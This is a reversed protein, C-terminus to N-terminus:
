MILDEFPAPFPWDDFWKPYSEVGDTDGLIDDPGWWDPDPIHIRVPVTYVMSKVRHYVSSIHENPIEPAKVVEVVSGEPLVKHSEEELERTATEPAPEEDARTGTLTQPKLGMKKVLEIRPECGPQTIRKPYGRGTEILYLGQSQILVRVSKAVRYLQQSGPNIWLRVEKDTIEKALQERTKLSMEDFEDRDVGAMALLMNVLEISM